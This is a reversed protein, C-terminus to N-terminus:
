ITDLDLLTLDHPEHHLHLLDIHDIRVKAGGGQFVVNEFPYDPHQGARPPREVAAIEGLDISSSRATKNSQSRRLSLNLSLRRSSRRRGNGKTEAPEEQESKLHDEEKKAELKPKPRSLAKSRDQHVGELQDLSKEEGDDDDVWTGIDVGLQESILAAVSGGTTEERSKSTSTTTSMTAQDSQQREESESESTHPCSGEVAGANEETNPNSNPPSALFALFRKYGEDNNGDGNININSMNSMNNNNNNM